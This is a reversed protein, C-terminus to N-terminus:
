DQDKYDYRKALTEIRWEGCSCETDWWGSDAFVVKEGCDPCEMSQGHRGADSHVECYDFETVITSSENKTRYM